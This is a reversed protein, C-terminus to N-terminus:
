KQVSVGENHVVPRNVSYGAVSTCHPPLRRQLRCPYLGQVHHIFRESGTFAYKAPQGKFCGVQDAAEDVRKGSEDARLRSEATEAMERLGQLSFPSKGPQAHSRRCPPVSSMGRQGDDPPEGRQLSGYAPSLIPGSAQWRARVAARTDSAALCPSPCFPLLGAVMGPTGAPASVATVHGPYPPGACGSWTPHDFEAARYFRHEVLV